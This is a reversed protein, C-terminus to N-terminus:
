SPNRLIFIAIEYNPKQNSIFFRIEFFTLLKEFKILANFFSFRFFIKKQISKSKFGM